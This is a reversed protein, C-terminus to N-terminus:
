SHETKDDTHAWLMPWMQGLRLTDDAAAPPHIPYFIRFIDSFSDPDCFLSATARKPAVKVRITNVRTTGIRKGTPRGPKTYQKKLTHLVGAYTNSLNDTDTRKNVTNPTNIIHCTELIHLNQKKLSADVIRTRDFAFVHRNAASHDLLATRERLQAVEVDETTKGQDWMNELRNSCSRHSSIRTQLKNSTMGVYCASCNACPINYIVNSRSNKDVVDKVPPLLNGVTKANKSSITVNPYDKRLVKQINGSLQGVHVMSRYIMEESSTVDDNTTNVQRERSRDILRNIMATPYDNRKLQTFIIDRTASPEVNTSFTKVRHIFNNAVNVKQKTSHASHYNLFRGSAIPKIYWETKITQDSQRVLLLDLFPIKGEQEVEVTFQIKEHYSNFITRVEEIKDKPVALMLDDVYKKLVPFPFSVRTVVNDLLTEMVLDAITPSLPNGMATGFVQQYFQGKFRFYSCDICFETMELFLDLNIDTHQKINEWNNIVDRIVLDKPICTFLSVVDLSILVYDPPLQVSNIYECFTFSDTADYKGTISKQIIKGVYQSLTYSPSTMCPVVPRLPLGEKHAKPAGYIRPATAKYTKM